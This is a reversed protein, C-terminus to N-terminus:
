LVCERISRCAAVAWHNWNLREEFAKRASKVLAAYRQDDYYVEYILRAYDVGTAEPPLLLGNEGDKVVDSVGGTDTTIVPLGFANAECYVIGYCESRTPLLLFDSAYLLQAFQKYQAPDDKDLYPIVHIDPHSVHRPPTCGCVALKAELGLRNLENLTEVAIDGGKRQWNVGIFLLRCRDSRTRNLVAERAPIDDLNAGFPIVRVNAEKARYDDIASRAAWATPYLILRAKRIASTEIEQNARISCSLLDSYEPYYNHLLAFTADSVYVVPVDTEFFAIKASALPAFVADCWRPSIHRKLYRAYQRALHVSHTADYRRKFFLYALRNVIKGAREWVSQISGLPYVNCGQKNLARAMYYYTGTSSVGSRTDSRKIRPHSTLFAVNLPEESANEASVASMLATEPYSHPNPRGQLYWRLVARNQSLKKRAETSDPRWASVLGWLIVRLTVGLWMGAHAVRREGPTFYKKMYQDRSRYLEVFGSDPQARVSRGLGHIVRAEPVTYVKWGRQRARRCWDLEESYLFFREDLMGIEEVVRYRIMLCAGVVADVEHPESRPPSPRAIRKLFLSEAIFSAPTPFVHRSNQLTKDPNLLQGGAIGCEPHRNLFTHLQDIADAYVVADPNLLLCYMGRSRALGQNAAAAFGINRRNQAVIVWPYQARVYAGSGDTSANDIVFVEMRDKDFVPWVADLCRKLEERVNYSVIIVSVTEADRRNM